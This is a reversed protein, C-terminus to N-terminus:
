GFLPSTKNLGCREKRSHILNTKGDRKTARTLQLPPKRDSELLTISPSIDNRPLLFIFQPFSKKGKLERENTDLWGGNEKM